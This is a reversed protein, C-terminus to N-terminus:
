KNRFYVQGGNSIYAASTGFGGRCGRRDGRNIRGLGAAGDRLKRQGFDYGQEHKGQGQDLDDLREAPRPQLLPRIRPLQRKAPQHHDHDGDTHDREVLLPPHSEGDEFFLDASEEADDRAFATLGPVM